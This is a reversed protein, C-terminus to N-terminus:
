LQLKEVKVKCSNIRVKIITKSKLNPKFPFVIFSSQRNKTHRFDYRSNFNSKKLHFELRPLKIIPTKLIKSSKSKKVRPTSDDFSKEEVEAKKSKSKKMRPKLNDFKKEEVETKKLKSKKVRPTLNDFKKEEVEAKKTKSKQIEFGDDRKINKSPKKIRKITTFKSNSKYSSKKLGPTQINFEDDGKSFVNVRKEEEYKVNEQKVIAIPFIRKSEYGYVEINDHTVPEKKIMHNIKLGEEFIIKEVLGPEEDYEIKVTEIRFEQRIEKVHSVASIM